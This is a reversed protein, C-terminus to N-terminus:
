GPVSNQQIVLDWSEYATADFVPVCRAGYEFYLHM